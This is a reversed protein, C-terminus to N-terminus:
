ASEGQKRLKARQARKRARMLDKYNNTIYGVALEHAPWIPRLIEGIRHLFAGRASPDTEQAMLQALQWAEALHDRKATYKQCLGMLRETPPLKEGTLLRSFAESGASAEIGASM